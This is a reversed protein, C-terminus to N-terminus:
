HTTEANLREGLGREAWMRLRCAGSLRSVRDAPRLAAMWFSRASGYELLTASRHMASGNLVVIAAFFVGVCFCARCVSVGNREKAGSEKQRQSM